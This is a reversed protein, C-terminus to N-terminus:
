YLEQAYSPETRSRQMLQRDRPITSLILCYIQKVDDPNDLLSLDFSCNSLTPLWRMNFACRGRNPASLTSQLQTQQLLLLPYRPSPSVTLTGDAILYICLTGYQRSFLPTHVDQHLVPALSIVTINVHSLRLCRRMCCHIRKLFMRDTNRLVCRISKVPAAMDVIYAAILARYSCKYVTTLTDTILSYSIRLMM